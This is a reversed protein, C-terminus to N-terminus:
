KNFESRQKQTVTQLHKLVDQTVDVRNNTYAIGEYLILDFGQQKGIAKIADNVLTQLKALEENRRLNLLEQIDNRRRQIERTMMTIEREKTMKQSDSMVSKNKQYDSQKKELKSALSKLEAQQPSFEKELNSSASKAQPAQELLLAVNVVGLKVPTEAHANVNLALLSIVFCLKLVNIM